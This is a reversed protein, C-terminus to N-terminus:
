TILCWGVEVPGDATYGSGGNLHIEGVYNLLSLVNAFTFFLLKAVFLRSVTFCEAPHGAHGAHVPHGPHTIKIM